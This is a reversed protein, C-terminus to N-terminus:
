RPNVTTGHRVRIKGNHNEFSYSLDSTEKVDQGDVQVLTGYVLQGPFQSPRLEFGYACHTEPSVLVFPTEIGEGSLVTFDVATDFGRLREARMTDRIFKANGSDGSDIEM